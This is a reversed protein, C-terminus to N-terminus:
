SANTLSCFNTHEPKDNLWSANICLLSRGLSIQLDKTGLAKLIRKWRMLSTMMMTSASSPTKDDANSATGSVKFKQREQRRMEHM